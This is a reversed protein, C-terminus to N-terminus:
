FSVSFHIGVLWEDGASEESMDVDERACVRDGYNYYGIEPQITFNDTLAYALATYVGWRTYHDPGDIGNFQAYYEWADNKLRTVGGGLGLTLQETLAFNLDIGIGWQTTNEISSHGIGTVGTMDVEVKHMPLSGPQGGYIGNGALDGFDSGFESTNGGTWNTDVNQGYHLNIVGHFPGHSYEIPIWLLYSLAKDDEFVISTLFPPYQFAASVAAEDTKWSHYAVGAGFGVSFDGFTLDLVAELSPLWSDTSAFTVSDGSLPDIGSFINVATAAGPQGLAVQLSANDNFEVEMIAKPSRTAGIFGFGAHGGKGSKFDGLGAMTGGDGLRSDQQGVLFKCSGVQYWGFAYRLYVSEDATGGANEANNGAALGLEIELGTTKDPSTFTARLYSDTNIAAFFNTLSSGSNNSIMNDKGLIQWGADFNVAGGLTVGAGPVDAQALPAGLTLAAALAAMALFKKMMKMKRERHPKFKFLGTIMFFCIIGRCPAATRASPGKGYLQLEIEIEIIPM